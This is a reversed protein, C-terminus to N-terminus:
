GDENTPARISTQADALANRTRVRVRKRAHYSKLAQARRRELHAQVWRRWAEYRAKKIGQQKEPPLANFYPVYYERYRKKWYKQKCEYCLGLYRRYRDEHQPRFMVGCLKCYMIYHYEKYFYPKKSMTKLVSLLSLL